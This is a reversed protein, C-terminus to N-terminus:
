RSVIGGVVGRGGSGIYGGVGVRAAQGINVGLTAAALRNLGWLLLIAGGIIKGLRTWGEPTLLLEGLGVFFRAISELVRAIGELPDLQALGEIPGADPSYEGRAKAADGAYQSPNPKCAWLSFDTAGKSIRLMLRTACLNDLACRETIPHSGDDIQWISRNTGGSPNASTATRRGTSECMAVSIAGALEPDKSPGGAAMVVIGIEEPSLVDKRRLAEVDARSVNEGPRGKGSLRATPTQGAAGLRANVATPVRRRM